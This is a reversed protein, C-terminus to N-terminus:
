KSRKNERMQLVVGAIVLAVGLAGWSIFAAWFAGGEPM